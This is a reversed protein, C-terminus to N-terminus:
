LEREKLIQSISKGTIPKTLPIGHQDRLIIGIKSPPHGEKALRIVLAEVEEATYRCWAPPRKTVPRTQHSRGKIKKPM